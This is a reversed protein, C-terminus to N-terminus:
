LPIILFCLRCLIVEEVYLFLNVRIKVSINYSHKQSAVGGRKLAGCRRALSFVASRLLVAVFTSSSVGRM